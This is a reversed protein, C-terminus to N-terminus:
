PLVSFSLNLRHVVDGSHEKEVEFLTGVSWREIKRRIEGSSLAFLPLAVSGFANYIGM